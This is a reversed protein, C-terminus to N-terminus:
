DQAEILFENNLNNDYSPPLKEWIYFADTLSGLVVAKMLLNITDFGGTFYLSVLVVYFKLCQHYYFHLDQQRSFDSPITDIKVVEKTEKPFLILVEAITFDSAVLLSLAVLVVLLLVM